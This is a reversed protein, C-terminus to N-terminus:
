QGVRGVERDCTRHRVCVPCFRVQQRDAAVVLVPREVDVATRRRQVPQRDAVAAGPTAAAPVGLPARLLRAVAGDAAFVGVVATAAQVGVARRGSGGCADAVGRQVVDGEAGGGGLVAAAQVVVGGARDLQGVDGERVVGGRVGAAA